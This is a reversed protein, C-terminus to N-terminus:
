AGGNVVGPKPQRAVLSWAKPGMRDNCSLVAPHTKTLVVCSTEWVQGTTTVVDFKIRNLTSQNYANVSAGCPFGASGGSPYDPHTSLDTWLFNKTEGTRQDRVGAYTRGGTLAVRLEFDSSEQASDIASCPGPDGTPGRRGAPGTAGPAGAAGDAGDAGVAGAVGTQGQPGMPGRPGTAGRPGRPGTPGTPRKCWDKGDSPRGPLARHGHHHSPKCKDAAYSTATAHGTASVAAATAPEAAGSSVMLALSAVMGAQKFRGRASPGLRATPRSEPNM